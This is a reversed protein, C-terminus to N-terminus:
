GRRPVEAGWPTIGAADCAEAARNRAAIAAALADEAAFVARQADAWRGVLETRHKKMADADEHCPGLGCVQCTRPYPLGQARLRQQCRSLSRDHM